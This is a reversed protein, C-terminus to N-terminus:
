ECVGLDFSVGKRVGLGGKTERKNLKNQYSKYKQTGRVFQKHVWLTHTGWTSFREEIVCNNLTMM